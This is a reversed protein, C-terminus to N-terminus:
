TNINEPVSLNALFSLTLENSHCLCESLQHYDVINSSIASTGGRGEAISLVALFDHLLYALVNTDVNFYNRSFLLCLNDVVVM